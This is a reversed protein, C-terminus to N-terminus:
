FRHDPDYQHDAMAPMRQWKRIEDKTHGTALRAMTEIVEAEHEGAIDFAGCLLQSYSTIVERRRDEEIAASLRGDRTMQIKMTISIRKPTM